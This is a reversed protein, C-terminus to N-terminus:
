DKAYVSIRGIFEDTLDPISRPPAAMLALVADRQRLLETKTLYELLSKGAVRALLCGLTNRVVREELADVWALSSIERAYAQWFLVASNALLIRDKRLHHAKSLFLALAFGGDFAPDGFHVTEYDLIILRGRYVLTNKPSFDGHVLSLRCRRTEQVLSRLFSASTPITDATYIYYPDLRLSEFHTTDDFAGRIEGAAESSRRHIAGLLIGFRAFLEPMIQGALLLSKWNEHGVPASEMALIHNEWDEWLFAPTAGPPALRNLWRLANAEVRIRELSSFWNATVRLKRLPQKLVWVPGGPWTVKVTKNSVGGPLRHFVVTERPRVHRNTRLYDELASFDEIDLDM